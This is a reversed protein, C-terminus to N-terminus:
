RGMALPARSSRQLELAAQLGVQRLVDGFLMLGPDIHEVRALLERSRLTRGAREEQAAVYLAAKVARPWSAHITQALQFAERQRGLAAEATLLSLDVIVDRREQRLRRLMEAAHEIYGSRLLGIAEALPSEPLERTLNVLARRIPQNEPDLEWARVWRETASEVQRRQQYWIAQGVYALADEPDFAACQQFTDLAREDGLELQAWALIRLAVLCNPLQSLVRSAARATDDFRRDLAAARADALVNLVESM